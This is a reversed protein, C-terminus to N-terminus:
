QARQELATIRARAEVDETQKLTVSDQFELLKALFKVFDFDEFLRQLETFNTDTITVINGELASIFERFISVPVSSRVIFPAVILAFNNEFLTSKSITWHIEIKQTEEHYILPLSTMVM